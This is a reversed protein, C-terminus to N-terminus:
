LDEQISEIIWRKNQRSAIILHEQGSSDIITFPLNQSRLPAYGDDIKKVITQRLLTEIPKGILSDLDPSEITEIPCIIDGFPYHDDPTVKEIKNFLGVPTLMVGTFCSCSAENEPHQRKMMAVGVTNDKPFLKTEGSFDEIISVSSSSIAIRLDKSNDKPLSNPLSLEERPNKYELITQIAKRVRELNSHTVSINLSRNTALIKSFSEESNKPLNTVLSINTTFRELETLIEAIEPNSLPDSALYPMLQYIKKPTKQEYEEALAKIQDLTFHELTNQGDVRPLPAAFACFDCAGTCGYSLQTIILQSLIIDLEQRSKNELPYPLRTKREEETEKLMRFFVERQDPRWFNPYLSLFALVSPDRRAEEIIEQWEEPTKKQIEEMLAIKDNSEFIRSKLPSDQTTLKEVQSKTSEAQNSNTDLSM